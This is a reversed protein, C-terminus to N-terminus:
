AGSNSGMRAWAKWLDRVVAKTMVRLADDRSHGKTWDPHTILTHERRRVYVEGYPGKPKGFATGSKEASELQHKAMSDAICAHIEARRTPAYGALTWEEATLGGAKRWTSYAKGEYPALGLRKWLCDYGRKSPDKPYASLDGCEGVLVAFGIDGFGKISEVFQYAPLQRSLKRMEREIDNRRATVTGLGAGIMAFEAAFLEAIAADKEALPKGAFVAGAIKTARANIADRKEEEACPDFDLGRRILATAANTMKVSLKICFKRRVQLEQLAACIISTQDGPAVRCQGDRAAVVHGGAVKGKRSPKGPVPLRDEAMEPAQTAAVDVSVSDDHSM